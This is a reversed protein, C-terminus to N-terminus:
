YKTNICSSLRKRWSCWEEFIWRICIISIILSLFARQMGGQNCSSDSSSLAHRPNLPTSPIFLSVVGGEEQVLSVASGSSHKPYPLEADCWQLWLGQAQIAGQRILAFLNVCVRESEQATAFKLPKRGCVGFLNWFMGSMSYAFRVGKIPSCNKNLRNCSNSAKEKLLPKTLAWFRSSPEWYERCLLVIKTYFVWFCCESTAATM